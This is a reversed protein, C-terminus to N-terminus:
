IIEDVAVGKLDEQTLGMKDLMRQVEQQIDERVQDTEVMVDTQEEIERAELNQERVKERTQETVEAIQEKKERIAELQEEKEEKKEKQEEAAEEAEEAKEDLYEKGEAYLAGIAEQSAAQMIAEAANTAKLMSRDKLLELKTGRIVALETQIELQNEAYTDLHTSLERDINLCREQYETTGMQDIQALRKEEEPTFIVTGPKREATERKELLLLDQQEQSDDKIGYEEKLAETQARLEQIRQNAEASEEKLTDVKVQREELDRDVKLAKDFADGVLKHAQKKALAKKEEVVSTQRIGGGIQFSKQGQAATKSDESRGTGSVYFLINEQNQEGIKMIVEQLGHLGVPLPRGVQFNM